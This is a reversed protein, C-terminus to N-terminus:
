KGRLRNLKNRMKERRKEAALRDIYYREGKKILIDGERPEGDILSVPLNIHGEDTEVIAIEGEFRDITLM